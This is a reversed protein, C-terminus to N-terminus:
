KCPRALAHKPGDEAEQRSSVQMGRGRECVSRLVCVKVLWCLMSMLNVYQSWLHTVCFCWLKSIRACLMLQSEVKACLVSIREASVQVFERLAALSLVYTLDLKLRFTYFTIAPINIGCASKNLLLIFSVTIM